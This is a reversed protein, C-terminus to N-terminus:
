HKASQIFNEASLMKFYKIKEWSVPDSMEHLNDGHMFNCITEMCSIDFGTKQSFYFFFIDIQQGSFKGQSTFTLAVIIVIKMSHYFLRTKTNPQDQRANHEGWHPLCFKSSQQKTIGEIPFASSTAKSNQSGRLPSSHAPQKLNATEHYGWVSSLVPQKATKYDGWHPLCFQNSQQKTIGKM